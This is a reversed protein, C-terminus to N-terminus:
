IIERARKLGTEFLEAVKPVEVSRLEPLGVTLFGLAFFVESTTVTEGSPLTLVLERRLERLEKRRNLVAEPFAGFMQEQLYLENDIEDILLAQERSLADVKTQLNRLKERTFMM